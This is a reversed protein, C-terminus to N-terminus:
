ACSCLSDREKGDEEFIKFGEVKFGLGEIFSPTIKEISIKRGTAEELKQSITLKLEDLNFVYPILLYAATTFLVLIILLLALIKILFAM